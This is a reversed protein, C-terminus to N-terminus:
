KEELSAKLRAFRDTKTESKSEKPAEESKKTSKRQTPRSPRSAKKTAKKTKSGGGWPPAPLEELDGVLEAYRNADALEEIRKNFLTRAVAQALKLNDDGISDFEVLLEKLDNTLYSIGDIYESVASYDVPIDVFPIFDYYTNSKEGPIHRIIELPLDELPGQSEDLSALHSWMLQSSQSILGILPYTIEEEGDETKKEYTDTKVSFGTPRLRGKIEEMVPELEVAVGICRVKSKRDLDDEIKDYDENIYPDRRSMFSEYATYTEGNKKERDIPIFDHMDFEGVEDIPTLVAIFKKEGDERWFIEPVFSQFNGGGKSTAADEIATAGRRYEPM